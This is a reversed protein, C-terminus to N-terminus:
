RSGPDDAQRINGPLGIATAGLGKGKFPQCWLREGRTTFCTVEGDRAIIVQGQDVLMTPRRPYDGGIEVVAHIRGTAYDLFALRAHSAVIVVNGEIAIELVVSPVVDDGLEWRVAGTSRDVGFM